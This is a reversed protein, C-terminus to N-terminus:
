LVFLSVFLCFSVVMVLSVVSSVDSPLWQFEAYILRPGTTTVGTDVTHVSLGCETTITDYTFSNCPSRHVCARACKGLDFTKTSWIIGSTVGVGQRVFNTMDFTGAPCSNLEFDYQMAVGTPVWVILQIIVIACVNMM